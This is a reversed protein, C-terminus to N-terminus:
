FGLKHLMEKLNYGETYFIGTSKSMIAYKSPNKYRNQGLNPNVQNTLMVITM